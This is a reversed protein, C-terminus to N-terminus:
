HCTEDYVKNYLKIYDDMISNWNYKNLFLNIKLEFNNKLIDLDASVSPSSLYKAMEQPSEKYAVINDFESPTQQSKTTFIVMKHVMAAFMSGRRETVGDPYPLYSIKNSGLVSSVEAESVNLLWQVPLNASKEEMKKYFDYFHDYTRGMIIVKFPLGQEKILAALEIVDEIGKEPRIQGFHVINEIKRDSFKLNTIAHINSGIPIVCTNKIKTWPYIKSYYNREYQNTFVMERCFSYPLLSIKRFL